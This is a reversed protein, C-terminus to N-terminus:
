LNAVYEMSSSSVREMASVWLMSINILKTYGIPKMKYNDLSSNGRKDLKTGVKCTTMSRSVIHKAGAPSDRIHTEVSNNYKPM